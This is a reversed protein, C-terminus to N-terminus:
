EKAIFYPIGRKIMKQFYKKWLADKEWVIRDYTTVSM